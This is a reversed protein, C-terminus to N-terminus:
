NGPGAQAVVEIAFAGDISPLGEFVVGRLGAPSRAPDLVGQGAKVAMDGLQRSLPYFNLVLANKVSSGASRATRELREFALKADEESYGFAMQAGTFVLKGRVGGAGAARTVGECVAGALSSMKQPQVFSVGEVPTRGELSPLYCTARLLEGAAKLQALAAEATAGEATVFKVGGPNVAGKQQLTAEILVQANELPLLGVQVTTVVPMSLHKEACAEGVLQPVRRLDGTGAVFARLRIFQAGRAQVILFKLAERTQQSLLGRGSLPAAVFSLRAADAALAQPPQPSEGRAQNPLEDNKKTKKNIVPAKEGAGMQMASAPGTLLTMGVAAALLAVLSSFPRRLM